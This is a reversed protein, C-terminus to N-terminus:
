PCHDCSRIVFRDGLYANRRNRVIPRLKRERVVNDNRLVEGDLRATRCDRTDIAFPDPRLEPIRVIPVLVGASAACEPSVISIRGSPDAVAGAGYGEIALM